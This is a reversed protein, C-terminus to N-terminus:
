PPRGVADLARGAGRPRGPAAGGRRELRDRLADNRTRLKEVEGTLARVQEGGGAREALDRAAVRCARRLRGDLARAAARRLAPVARADGLETLAAAAQLQIRLADDDLLEVLRERARTRPGEDTFPALRGLAAAAARRANPTGDAPPTTSSCRSRAGMGCRGSAPSPAPPSSTTTPRGIWCAACRRSPSAAVRRGWRPPRPPRSMIRATAGEPSGGRSRGRRPTRGPERRPRDGGGAARARVGLRPRRHPRRAGGRDPGDRACEGRRLPRHREGGGVQARLRAGRGGAALRRRRPGGGGRDARRGGPGRRPPARLQAEGPEFVLRKLIRNAPDVAVWRPEGDLPVVFAHSPESLDVRRVHHGHETRFAIELPMRYISTLPDSDAKQEQAVRVTALRQEADWSYTVRLEPHGGELGVPRLVLRPEPGDGGRRSAPPRAHAGGGRPAALRLPRDRAVLARGRPRLPAHRAGARGARLPPPRLHRHARLLREPGPPPPLERCGRQLLGEGEGPPRPPLRGLRPCAGGLALRLLHRLERQALRAVVRPLDASRRVVPPRARPRHHLRLAGRSGRPGARRAAARRDDDDGVHEGDRRLHLGLRRRHRVEGVPLPGRDERLLLAGDRAHPRLRAEPGAREGGPRPLRRPRRRWRPRRRPREGRGLRARGRRAHHPLRSAPAGAALPLHGAAPPSGGPPPWADTPSRSGDSRSRRRSRPHRRRAPTTSARSTTPRTRRRARRGSRGRGTPTTPMRRTSTSAGGRGRATACSRRSAGAPPARGAWTSTSRASACGSPLARGSGDTVSEVELERADFVAERLGDARPRFTTTAVGSLERRRLNFSFELAIHEVAFPRDRGWVPRDGPLAFPHRGEQAASGSRATGLLGGCSIEPLLSGGHAGEAM